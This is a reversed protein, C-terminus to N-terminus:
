SMLVEVKSISRTMATPATGFYTATVGSPEVIRTVLQHEISRLTMSAVLPLTVADIGTPPLCGRPMATLGSLLVAYTVTM